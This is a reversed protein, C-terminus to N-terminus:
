EEVHRSAYESGGAHLAFLFGSEVSSGISEHRITFYETVRPHDALWDAAETPVLLHTGGAEVADEVSRAVRAMHDLEPEGEDRWPLPFARLSPTGELRIVDGMGFVFGLMSRRAAAGTPGKQAAERWGTDPNSPRSRSQMAGDVASGAAQGPNHLVGEIATASKASMRDSAPSHSKKRKKAKWSRTQKPEQSDLFVENRVRDIAAPRLFNAFHELVPDTDLGLEAHGILYNRLKDEVRLPYPAGKPRSFRHVWRLWPLCLTRGGRQRFKEHIYGEEGGFGRFDRNFGPWVARRCSFVGLGQMPIEFPEGDPDIGRPDTAWVGWMEDRWIPDFHTSVNQLDDYVLPGQLLDTCDPHTRYYAKLRNISGPALIVHSDCCLVAEGRAEQFVRERPAATGVADTALIYRSRTWEEIFRKTHKCGYNDVVLLETDSLDHFLRLTQLTFYVGDFDNYTAMGITLDIM